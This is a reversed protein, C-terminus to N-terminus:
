LTASWGGDPNDAPGAPPDDAPLYRKWADDFAAKHYGKETVEGIRITTPRVKFPRLLRALRPPTIPQGRNWEAWPSEELTAL